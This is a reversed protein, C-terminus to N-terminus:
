RALLGGPRKQKIIEAQVAASVVNGLAKAQSEDGAAESGTADVNVVVSINGGMGGKLEVPISRGDPLPVIAENYRGEGVLGMTPGTVMGGNAFAKFGGPAIGGTAFTLGGTFTAPNFTPGGGGFAGSFNGVGKPFLSQALGIIQMEIWKAIMRSAMDLFYDGISQFFGALAEQASMSGSIMGKFADGFAAGINEAAKILQNAPKMLDSLESEVEEKRAGLEGGTLSPMLDIDTRFTGGTLGLGFTAERAERAAKAIADTIGFRERFIRNLDEEYKAQEEAHDIQLLQLRLQYEAQKIKGSDFDKQIRARRTGIELLRKDSELSAIVEEDQDAKAAAINQDIQLIRSRIRIEERLQKLVAELRQQEEAARQAARAAKNEAGNSLKSKTAETNLTVKQLKIEQEFQGASVKRANQLSKEITLRQEVAKEYAKLAQEEDRRAEGRGVGGGAGISPLRATNQAVKYRRAAASEQAKAAALRVTIEAVNGAGALGDLELALDRVSKQSANAADGINLLKGILLDLGVLVAGVVLGTTAVKLAIVGARAAGTAAPIKLLGGIFSYVAKLAGALGTIRLANLAGNLATIAATALIAARGLPTGIFDVALKVVQVFLPTLSALRLGLDAIARAASEFSPRLQQITNYLFLARSSLVETVEGGGVFTGTLVQMASTVDKILSNVQPGFTAAFANVIPTMSEYMLQLNNQIQNLAGQLTKAAGQAAPGFKDNMLIAVNDLVQQMAKGKFAGDEMAKSFEPISMQAAQAFLALAGPLVDGLQGKLEESMIQGKSAMQAFAYNVRDVKDASLGFAATAKSIGTFLGEIQQQSFGAPQMSAYLKVFGQRASELPVNFRQALTDVFANSEEFTGTASTVAKLQNEYTALSKAATFAQNPLDTFFALAKYATGYLLVQKLATGFEQGVEAIAGGLPLKHTNLFGRVKGYAQEFSKIAKGAAFYGAGLETQAPRYASQPAMIGESPFGSPPVYGGGMRRSAVTGGIPPLMLPDRGTVGGRLLRQTTAGLDVVSVSQRARQSIQAQIKAIYQDVAVEVQRVAADFLDVVQTEVGFLYREAARAFRERMAAIFGSEMSVIAGAPGGMGAGQSQASLARMLAEMGATLSSQRTASPLLGAPDRGAAIAQMPSAGTLLRGTGSPGAAPTRAPAMAPWDIKPLQANAARLQRITKQFVASTIDRVMVAVINNLGGTPVALLAALVRNRIATVAQVVLSGAAGKAFGVGGAVGGVALAGIIAGQSGSSLASNIIEQYLKGVFEQYASSDISYRALNAATGMLGGATLKAVGGAIGGGLAKAGGVAVGTAAGGTGGLLGGKAGPVIAASMGERVAKRVALQIGAALQREFSVLASGLGPLNSLANRIGGIVALQVARAMRRESQVISSVFGKEFGEAAFKGLKGTEKSPSAIGLTAKITSILIQGLNQAAARVQADGSALGNLLGTVSSKGVESLEKAIKGVNNAVAEDFAVLGADAAARYLPKIDQKLKRLQAQSFGAEVVGPTRAAGGGRPMNKLLETLRVARDVETKLNTNVEVYFKKNRIYRDLLRFENVVKGRDFKVNISLPQGALQSGINNLQRRFHQLDLGVKLLLEANEAM